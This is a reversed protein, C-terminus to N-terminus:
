YLNSPEGNPALLRGKSDRLANSLISAEESTLVKSAKINSDSSTGLRARRRPTTQRLLNLQLM